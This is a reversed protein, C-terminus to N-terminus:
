PKVKAIAQTIEPKEGLDSLYKAGEQKMIDIIKLGRPNQLPQTLIRRGEKFLKLKIAELEDSDKAYAKNNDIIHFRDRGFLTQFKGINMQTEQWMKKVLGPDVKRDRKANRELAVELSTNVFVLDVDYGIERLGTVSGEMKDYNKGTGDILIPLLSDVYTTLRSKNLRKAKDRLQMQKDYVDSDSDITLPLNERHLFFEFIEDSNVLKAGLFDNGFMQDGIFSKGSGPGGAMFIAKFINADNISEVVGSPVLEILRIV